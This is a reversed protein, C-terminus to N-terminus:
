PFVVFLGVRFVLRKKFSLVSIIPTYIIGIAFVIKLVWQM